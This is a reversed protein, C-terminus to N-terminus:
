IYIYYLVCMYIYLCAQMYMYLSYINAIHLHVHTYMCVGCYTYLRCSDRQSLYTLFLLISFSIGHFWFITGDVVNISLIPKIAYQIIIVPLIELFMTRITCCLGLFTRSSLFVNTPINTKLYYVLFYGYYFLYLNPWCIIFVHQVNLFIVVGTQYCIFNFLM